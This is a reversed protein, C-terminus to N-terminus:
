FKLFFYLSIEKKCVVSQHCSMIGCTLIEFSAVDSKETLYLGQGM